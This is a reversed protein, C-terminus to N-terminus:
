LSNHSNTAADDCMRGYGDAGGQPTPVAGLPQVSGATSTTPPAYSGGPDGINQTSLPPPVRAASTKARTVSRRACYVVLLVVLLASVVTAVIAGDAGASLGGGAVGSGRGPAVVNVHREHAHCSRVYRAAFILHVGAVPANTLPSGFGKASTTASSPQKWSLTSSICPTAITSPMAMGISSTNKSVAAENGIPREFHSRALPTRKADFLNACIVLPVLRSSATNSM